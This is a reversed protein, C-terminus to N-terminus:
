CTCWRRESRTVVLNAEADSLFIREAFFLGGVRKAFRSGRSSIRKTFFLYSGAFISALQGIRKGIRGFLVSRRALRLCPLRLSPLWLSSLRLSAFRLSSLATSIRDQWSICVRIEVGGGVAAAIIITTRDKFVFVFFFIRRSSNLWVLILQGVWEPVRLVLSVEVFITVDRWSSNISGWATAVLLRAILILILLRSVWVRTIWLRTIWLRSILLGTILLWPIRLWSILLRSVLLGTVLRWCILRSILGDRALRWSILWTISSWRRLM